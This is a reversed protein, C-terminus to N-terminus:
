RNNTDIQEHFIIIVFIMKQNSNLKISFGEIHVVSTIEDNVSFAYENIENSIPKNTKKQM